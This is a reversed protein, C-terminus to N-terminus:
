TWKSFDVSDVLAEATSPQLVETNETTVTSLMSSRHSQEGSTASTFFTAVSARRLSSFSDRMGTLRPSTIGGVGAANVDTGPGGGGGAAVAAGGGPGSMGQGAPQQQHHYQHHHAGHGGGGSSVVSLVSGTTAGPVPTAIAGPPPSPTVGQGRSPRYKMRLVNIQRLRERWSSVHEGTDSNAWVLSFVSANLALLRVFSPLAKLSIMKPEACPSIEPFGEKSMVQVMCFRSTGEEQTMRSAVFPLHPTPTIIIYVYNFQSPFTDFKFPMGSDNWVISVYDNGIHRKKMICQPDTELNTPMQTTIHFVIETVRDRWCYTYKGDLDNERDLGQTNFTAGKLKTLPGLGRLFQHYDPSGATNALIEPESTQGEKIYIVGVKHGDVPSNRDFNRIARDVFDDDPLLIPRISPDYLQPMPALLQMLLHSPFITLGHQFRGDWAAADSGDPAPLNPMPTFEVRLAYSSTGSPYRRTIEAWSSERAQRITLISNGIIWRKTQIEGFYQEKFLPDQVSDAADSFAVRQMFDLTIQAHEETNASGDVDTFLNKTIWGIQTPRDPLKVALFWFTIVHYALAYVYQPLDDAAPHQGLIEPQNAVGGSPMAVDSSISGRMALKKERVYQLYRFCIGFVIRYDDERFNSYLSPLRSLCALFELIHMAVFPQTIVQSMRQLITLLSKSVSMPLEHCCMSLAHICTKATKDSIGYMFTRVLEDEDVKQFHHHYSVIMILSHFLCNAVDTRRLGSSHPPEQFSNTRVMECLLRRLEQIHSIADRFISHNSLQLPLHVLIFSYVEWDCGQHFLSILAELWPIMDLLMTLNEPKATGSQDRKHSVLLPSPSGPPSAPLADADPVSWLRQGQHTGPKPTSASRAPVGREVTQGQSFSIGRTPRGAHEARSLRPPQSADEALKRALSAETRYLSGALADNQVLATLYVHHEFDARLRFLMKMATLRADVECSNSRAIHVLATYAKIAKPGNHNMMQIFIQVYGKSVVNSLSQNAFHVTQSRHASPGVRHPALGSLPPRSMDKSIVAKFADLIDDFLRDGATEAVEVLFAVTEQLVHSDDEVRLGGLVRRVLEIVSEEDVLGEALYLFNYVEVIVELARLRTLPDRSRNLYFREMVLKLNDEWGVESPFCARSERLHAVVLAAASDPLVQHVAALFGMCEERQPFDPNNHTLLTEIRNVLNKLQLAVGDEPEREDKVVTPLSSPSADVNPSPHFAKKACQAAVAFIPSWHEELLMANINGERGNFMSNVLKLIETAIRTSSSKAVTSLGDVLLALPVTPYGKESSKSLLKKLVSLAGRVERVADKDPSTSYARLLDLLIRVTSQGHHSRCIVSITHWSDKQLSPVLCHISSLVQICDKLKDTPITGFTVVTDVVNICARLDDEVSTNMCIKLLIDMLSGVVSDTAFKFNFKIVDKLLAFMRSLNKDEGSSLTIGKSAKGTGRSAQRRATKAANYTEQLWQTLLPFIDYYFGSINRGRNTLDELAALQLYFDDPPAPATLTRFYERRELETSAPYKICETLLEWAVQRANAPKDPDILDKAAHWIDRVPNLPFDAIVYRLSNAAAVREALQGNKLQGFLEAQEPPLGHFASSPSAADLRDAFAQSGAIPAFPQQLVPPSKTLKGGGTLGKFVGALGGAAKTEQPQPEEGPSPSM